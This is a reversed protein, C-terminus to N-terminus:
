PSLICQIDTLIVYDVFNESRFLLTEHITGDVVGEVSPTYSCDGGALWFVHYTVQM